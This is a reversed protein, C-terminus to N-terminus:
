EGRAASADDGPSSGERIARIQEELEEARANRGAERELRALAALHEVVSPHEPGFSEELIALAREYLRRAEDYRGEDRSLSALHTLSLAVGRNERGYIAERLALGRELLRRAEAREGLRALVEGLTDLSMAVYPHNPGLRKEFIALARESPARAEAFREQRWYAIGIDMLTSAFSVDDPGNVKEKIALAQEYSTIAQQHEGLKSQANGLASWCQAVEAAEEGFAKRRIALARELLPKGDAAADTECYLGGLTVLTPAVDPHEPGLAAEGIALARELNVRASDYAGAQMQLYGLSRLSKALDPHNAPLIKERLSVAEEALARAREPSGIDRYVTSLTTLLRAQVLPEDGLKAPLDQTGRDLIEGVTTERGRAIVPSASRFLEVLFDSVREATQTERRAASEARRARVLGVTTGLIGLLVALFFAAAFAVPVKHRAVIKRIQYLTSQPRALIPLDQIYRRLDEALATVSQYRAAPDKELAKLVITEVDGRLSRAAASPKRPASECVARVSEHLPGPPVDYPLASTLLEYLIVGLAYVDSRLDIADSEGRAQEPSMYRLTGQIRATDAGTRTAGADSDVIRALGFDLVKARMSPTGGGSGGDDEEIVVINSPKLDRHVVGKQHAYAIADCVQLFLDLRARMERRDDVGAARAKSWQALTPGRVLEMAFYPQGQETRGADHITAIGPHVLRALARTERDFLWVRYPDFTAETRILKIAVFRRPHEQEAEYVLGMGGEGLKRVVRYSGIRTGAPLAPDVPRDSVWDALLDGAVEAAPTSLFSGARADATLYAEVDARLAADSGCAVDLARVREADPLDLLDLLIAEIRSWREPSM